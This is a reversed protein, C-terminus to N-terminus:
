PKIRQALARDIMSRLSSQSFELVRVGNIFITPTGAVEYRHGDAIDRRIEDSNENSTFDLEFQKENLGLEKAFAKLTEVDLQSQNSYLRDVYAFYKGQKAAANAARAANFANAHVNELPFDRVVFRVRDGYDGIVSKVIPHVASCAPCQFDSFMVITVAASVPGISPDDDMSVERAVPEPRAVLFKVSYKRFLNQKLSTELRIREEDTYDRLKNTIENAIFTAADVNKEKAERGIVFEFIKQELDSIVNEAIRVELDYVSARSLDAFEKASLAKGGISFIVDTPKLGASNVDRGNVFKHKTKLEPLLNELTKREAAERLFSIIRPRAEDLTLSQFVAQNANYVREIEALTVPPSKKYVEALVAERSLKRSSAEADLLRAEIIRNLIEVRKEAIAKETLLYIKRSNESLSDATFVAGNATALNEPKRQSFVSSCCLTVFLFVALVMSPLKREYQNDQM